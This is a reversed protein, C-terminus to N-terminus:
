RLWRRGRLVFFVGVVAVVVVGGGIAFGLPFDEPAADNRFTSHVTFSNNSDTFFRNQNVNYTQVEITGATVNFTLIRASEAGLRGYADQQNFLLEWRGGVQSRNGQTPYYHGSLTLFVNPHPDLVTEKLHGAWEDYGAAKNLYSHTTVIVHSQPNADLLQNAWELASDNAYFAINVILCDWGSVNFRVATNMGDYKDSVWYPKDKMVAPNFPAFQNGTYYSSNFDHNGADWTYPVGGDLLVGMSQNAALWQTLNGESNVIDGTHITMKTNYTAQNDAIWQTLNTYAQPNSESLYQTDTIWIVSFTDDAGQADLPPITSTLAALILAAALLTQPPPNKM